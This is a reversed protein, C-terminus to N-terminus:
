MQDIKLIVTFVGFAIPTYTNRVVIVGFLDDAAAPTDFMLPLYTREAHYIVEGSQGAGAHGIFATSFDLVGILNGMDASTPTFAANDVDYTGLAASFIWCEFVGKTAQNANDILLADVISGTRGNARAAAAFTLGAGAATDLVDGATYQTVDNPRVIFRSVLKGDRGSGVTKISM